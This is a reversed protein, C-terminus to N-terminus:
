SSIELLLDPNQECFRQIDWLYTVAGEANGWGNSPNHARLRDIHEVGWEVAAALVPVLDGCRVGALDRLCLRDEDVEMPGSEWGGDPRPRSVTRGAANFAKADAGCWRRADPVVELAATLCEAWMGSVNSTYNGCRTYGGSTVIVTGAMGDGGFAPHTDSFLPEVWAEGHPDRGYFDYSM